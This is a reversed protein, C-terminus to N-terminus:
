LEASTQALRIRALWLAWERLDRQAADRQAAQDAAQEARHLLIAGDIREGCNYCRWWWCMGSRCIRERLMRGQCRDCTM